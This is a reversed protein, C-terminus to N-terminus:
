CGEGGSSGQPSQRGHGDGPGLEGPQHLKSGTLTSYAPPASLWRRPLSCRAASGAARLPQPKADFCQQTFRPPLCSWSRSGASHLSPLSALTRSCNTNRRRTKLHVLLVHCKLCGRAFRDCSEWHQNVCASIPCPVGPFFFIMCCINSYKPFQRKGSFLLIFEWGSPLLSPDARSGSLSYFHESPM